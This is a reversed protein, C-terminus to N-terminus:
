GGPKSDQMFLEVDTLGAQIRKRFLEQVAVVGFNRNETILINSSPDRTSGVWNIRHDDNRAAHTSETTYGLTNRSVQNLSSGIHHELFPAFKQEHRSVRREVQDMQFIHLQQSQCSPRNEWSNRRKVM